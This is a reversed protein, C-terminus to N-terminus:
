SQKEEQLLSFDKQLVSMCMLKGSTFYLFLAQLYEGSRPPLFFFCGLVRFIWVIKRNILM